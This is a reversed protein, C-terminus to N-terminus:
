RSRLRRVNGKTSVQCRHEPGVLAEDSKAEPFISVIWGTATKKSRTFGTTVGIDLLALRVAEREDLRHLMKVPFTTTDSM